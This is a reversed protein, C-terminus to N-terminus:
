GYVWLNMCLELSFWPQSLFIVKWSVNIQWPSHDFIKSNGTGPIPKSNYCWSELWRRFHHSWKTPVYKMHNFKSMPILYFKVEGRTAEDQHWVLPTHSNMSTLTQNWTFNVFQSVTIELSTMCTARLPHTKKTMLKDDINLWFQKTGVWILWNSKKQCSQFDQANICSWCREFSM